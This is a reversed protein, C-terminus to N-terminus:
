LPTPQTQRRGKGNDMFMLMKGDNWCWLLNQLPLGVPVYCGDGEGVEEEAGLAMRERGMAVHECAGYREEYADDRLGRKPLADDVARAGM